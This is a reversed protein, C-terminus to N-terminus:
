FAPTVAPTKIRHGPALGAERFFLVVALVPRAPPPMREARWM